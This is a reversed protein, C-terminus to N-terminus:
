VLEIYKVAKINSNKIVNEITEVRENLVDIM